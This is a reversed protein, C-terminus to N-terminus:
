KRSLKRSRRRSLKKTSKRTFKRRVNTKRTRKSTKRLTRRRRSKTRRKSKSRRKTRRRRRTPYGGGARPPGMGQAEAEAEAAAEAAEAEAEAEAQQTYAANLDNAQLLDDNFENMAGADVLQLLQQAAEIESQDESQITGPLGGVYRLFERISNFQTVIIDYYRMTFIYLAKILDRGTNDMLKKLKQLITTKARRRDHAIQAELTEVDADHINVLPINFFKYEMSLILFLHATRRDIGAPVGQDFYKSLYERFQTDCLLKLLRRGLFTLKKTPDNFFENLKTDIIEGTEIDGAVVAPAGATLREARRRRVTNFVTAFRRRLNDRNWYAVGAVVAATIGAMGMIPTTLIGLKFAFGQALSCACIAATNGTVNTVHFAINCGLYKVFWVLLYIIAGSVTVATGAMLISLIIRSCKFAMYSTDAIGRLCCLFAILFKKLSGSVRYNANCNITGAAGGSLESGGGGGGGGEEEVLPDMTEWLRAVEENCLCDRQPFEDEGKLFSPPVPQGCYKIDYRQGGNTRFSRVRTVDHVDYYESFWMDDADMPPPRADMPNAMKQKKAAAAVATPAVKRASERTAMLITRPTSTNPTFEGARQPDDIKFQSGMAQFETGKREELAMPFDETQLEKGVDMEAATPM